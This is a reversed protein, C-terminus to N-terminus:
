ADNIRKTHIRRTLCATEHWRWCPQDGSMVGFVRVTGTRPDTELIRDGAAPEIEAGDLVLVSAAILYDRSQFTSVIGSTSVQEFTSQGIAASVALTRGGRRYTVAVANSRDRMRARFAAATRFRDAM